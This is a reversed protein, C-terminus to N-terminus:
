SELLDLMEKSFIRNQIDKGHKMKETEQKMFNKNEALQGTSDVFIQVHLIEMALALLEQLKSCRKYRKGKCSGGSKPICREFTNFMAYDLHLVGRAIFIHDYTPQQENQIQLAIKTIALNYTVVISTKGCEEAICLARTLTEEIFAHLTPSLNIQLLYVVQQLQDDKPMLMSNWGVFM